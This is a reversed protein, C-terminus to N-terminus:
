RTDDRTTEHRRMKAVRGFKQEVAMFTAKKSFPGLRGPWASYIMLCNFANFFTVKVDNPIKQYVGM